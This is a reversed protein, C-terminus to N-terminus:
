SWPSTRSKKLITEASNARNCSRSLNKSLSIRAICVRPKDSGPTRSSAVTVVRSPSSVARTSETARSAACCIRARPASDASRKTRSAVASLALNRSSASISTDLRRLSATISLSDSISSALCCPRSITLSARAYRSFINDSSALRRSSAFCCISCNTRSRSLNIDANSRARRAALSTMPSKLSNSSAASSNVRASGSPTISLVILFTTWNSRSFNSSSSDTGATESIM